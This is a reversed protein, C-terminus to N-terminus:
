AKEEDSIGEGKVEPKTISGYILRAQELIEIINQGNTGIITTNEL